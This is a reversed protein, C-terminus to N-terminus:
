VHARGIQYTNAHELEQVVPRVEKDVFDKVTRVMFQEDDSLIDLISM